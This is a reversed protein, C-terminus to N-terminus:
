SEDSVEDLELKILTIENQGLKAQYHWEGYYIDEEVLYLNFVSRDGRLAILNGNAKGKVSYKSTPCTIDMTYEKTEPNFALQADYCDTNDIDSYYLKGVRM